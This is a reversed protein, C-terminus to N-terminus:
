NTNITHNEQALVRYGQLIHTFDIQVLGCCFMIFPLGLAYNRPTVTSITGRHSFPVLFRNIGSDCSNTDIDHHYKVHCFSLIRWEFPFKLMVEVKHLYASSLHVNGISLQDNGLFQLPKQFLLILHTYFSAM